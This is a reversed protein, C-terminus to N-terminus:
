MKGKLYRNLKRFCVSRDLNVKRSIQEWKLNQVLRLRAIIRTDPEDIEEIFNLTKNLEDVYKELTKNLKNILKEKKLYYQETPNGVVSSHPLGTIEFSSIETLNKIETELEEIEIKLYYLNNFKGM